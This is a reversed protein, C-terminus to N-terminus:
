RLYDLLSPQLIKAGTALSAQYVQSMMSYEMMKEAVDVDENKSLIKTMELSETTNREKAAELRNYTTGMKTRHLIMHDIHVDMDGLIEGSLADTDGEELAKSINELLNMLDQNKETAGKATVMSGGDSNLTVSIGQGIERSLNGQDGQYVVEGDKKMFAPETTKQGSFIYQGAYNTNLAQVVQDKLTDVEDKLAMRDPTSLAGNAGYVVLERVRLLSTSVDSFAGDATSAWGLTDEINKQYQDNGQISQKLHMIKSVVMPNDSPKSVEKFSSLQDHLKEMKSLNKNVNRLYNGTLTNNTIRM